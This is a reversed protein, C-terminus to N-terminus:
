FFINFNSFVKSDYFFTTFFIQLNPKELKSIKNHKYHFIQISAIYFFDGFKSELDHMKFILLWCNSTELEIEFMM